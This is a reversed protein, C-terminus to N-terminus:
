MALRQDWGQGRIGDSVELGIRLRQDRGVKAAPGM